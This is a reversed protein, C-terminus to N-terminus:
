SVRLRKGLQKESTLIIPLSTKVYGGLLYRNGRIASYALPDQQSNTMNQTITKEAIGLQEEESLVRDGNGITGLYNHLAEKQARTLKKAM